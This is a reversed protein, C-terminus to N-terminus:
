FRPTALTVLSLLPRITRGLSIRPFPTIDSRERFARGPRTAYRLRPAGCGIRCGISAPTASAAYALFVSGQAVSAEANQADVWSAGGGFGNARSVRGQHDFRASM